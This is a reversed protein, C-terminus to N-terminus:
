RPPLSRGGRSRPVVASAPGVQGVAEATPSQESTTRTVNEPEPAMIETIGCGPAVCIVELDSLKISAPTSSWPGSMKGASIVLGHEALLRQM